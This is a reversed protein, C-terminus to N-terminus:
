LVVGGGVGRRVHHLIEAAGIYFSKKKRSQKKTLHCINLQYGVSSCVHSNLVWVREHHLWASIVRESIEQKFLSLRGKHFLFVFCICCRSLLVHQELVWIDNMILPAKVHALQVLEM